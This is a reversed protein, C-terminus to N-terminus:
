QVWQEGLRGELLECRLLAFLDLRPAFLVAPRRITEAVICRRVQALLKADLRRPNYQAVTGSTDGFDVRFLVQALRRFDHSPHTSCRKTM